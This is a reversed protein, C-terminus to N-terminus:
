FIERWSIRKIKRDFKLNATGFTGDSKKYVEITKNSEADILFLSTGIAEHQYRYANNTPYKALEEPKLVYIDKLGKGTLAEMPYTYGSSKSTTCSLVPSSSNIFTNAFIFKDRQLSPNYIVQEYEKTGDANNVTTLNLYWGSKSNWDIATTTLENTTPNVNQAQLQSLTIQATKTGTNPFRIVTKDRLGYLSQTGTAYTTASGLYGEKRIGTGFNLIVDGERNVQSVAIKTSIPQNAQTTFIKQPQTTAWTSTNNSSLDFRWVNGKIDGAYAYDYIRDGDIDIPTVHAIGNPNNADIGSEGTSIFRFSPSGTNRDISMVYIGAPGTSATCNGNAADVTSCWGNGFVAGWNGDHFRGFVPTGYSNGLNRWVNDSPNHSWEGIVYQGATSNKFDDPKTIDLAYITSGGTGLGSLLWTHWEGKYFVDGTAPTADNYFNHAYQSHTFNLSTDSKNHIRALVSAPMYALLERGDNQATNFTAGTNYNGSRFGHLFGDNSGVYVVNTRTRNNNLYANYSGNPEAPTVTPYRKDIWSSVYTKNNPYGVWAPSSNIIDSLVNNRKRFLKGDGPNAQEESRDGKLYALRKEAVAESEGTNQLSAKQAATLRSWDLPIGSSGNWTWFIRSNPAQVPVTSNTSECKGGTLNCSADWNATNSVSYNGAGDKVLSKAQLQGTWYLPNFLSVYMQTGAVIRSDPLNSAASGESGTSPAAKFCTVEHNNVSGGTAGMFGFRFSSPLPGNASVVDFDLMVPQYTGGNRSYWVSAKGDPTIRIRYQIPEAKDRTNTRTFIRWDLPRYALLHYNWLKLKSNNPEVDALTIPSHGAPLYQSDITIRGNTCINNGLRTWLNQNNINWYDSWRKAADASVSGWGFRNYVDQLFRKPDRIYNLNTSGAGRISIANPRFGQIAKHRESSITSQTRHWNYAINWPARAPSTLGSSSNDWGNAFNGYEDMGIGIYGGDVGSFIPNEYSCPYGLSGGSAGLTAPRNGDALFFTMGDAGTRPVDSWTYTTFTIEVGENTPFTFNSVIGGVQHTPNDPTLRLAGRGIADSTSPCKPPSGATTATPRTTSTGATLCANNVVRSGYRHVGDGPLPMLWQNQTTGGTFDESIVLAYVQQTSTAAFAIAILKSLLKIQNHTKM